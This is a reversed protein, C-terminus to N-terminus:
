GEVEKSIAGHHKLRPHPETSEIHQMIGKFEADSHYTTSADTICGQTGIHARGDSTVSGFSLFSEPIGFGTTLRRDETIFAHVKQENCETMATRTRGSRPLHAIDRNGHKSHKVRRRVTRVGMCSDEHVYRLYYFNKAAFTDKILFSIVTRQRFSANNEIVPRM